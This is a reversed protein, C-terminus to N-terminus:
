KGELISLVEDIKIYEENEGQLMKCDEVLLKIKYELESNYSTIRISKKALEIIEELDLGKFYPDNLLTYIYHCTYSVDGIQLFITELNMDSSMNEEIKEGRKELRNLLEKIFEKQTKVVVSLDKSSM